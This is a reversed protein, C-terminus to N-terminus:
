LTFFDTVEGCLHDGVDKIRKSNGCADCQMDINKATFIVMMPSTNIRGGAPVGTMSFESPLASDAKLARAKAM